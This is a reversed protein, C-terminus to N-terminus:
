SLAAKDCLCFVDERNLFVRLVEQSGRGGCSAVVRGAAIEWSSLVLDSPSGAGSDVVRETYLICDRGM